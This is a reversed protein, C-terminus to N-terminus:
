NYQYLVFDRNLQISITCFRSKTTNIYYLINKGWMGYMQNISDRNFLTMSSSPPFSGLAAATAAAAAAAANQMAATANFPNAMLYSLSSPLSSSNAFFHPSMCDNLPLSRNTADDTSSNAIRNRGNLTSADDPLTDSSTTAPQPSPSSHGNTYKSTSPLEERKWKSEDDSYSARKPVTLDLSVDNSHNSQAPSFQHRHDDTDDSSCGYNDSSSRKRSSDSPSRKSDQHQQHKSYFEITSSASSPSCASTKLNSLSSRSVNKDHQQLLQQQQMYSQALQSHLLDSYAQSLSTRTATSSAAVSAAAAADTFSVAPHCNDIKQKADRSASPPVSRQSTSSLSPLTALPSPSSMSPSSSSCSDKIQQLHHVLAPLLQNIEPLDGSAGALSAAMHSALFFRDIEEIGLISRQFPNSTKSGNGGGFLTEVSPFGLNHPSTSLSPHMAGFHMGVLPMSGFTPVPNSSSTM